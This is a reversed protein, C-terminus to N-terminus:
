FSYRLRQKVGTGVIWAVIDDVVGSAAGPISLFAKGMANTSATISSAYDDTGHMKIEITVGQKPPFIQATITVDQFTAPDAPTAWVMLSYLTNLNAIEEKEGEDAEEEDLVDSEEGSGPTLVFTVVPNEMTVKGSKVYARFNQADARMTVTDGVYLGTVTFDGGSTTLLQDFPATIHVTSGHIGSTNGEEDKAVIHGILTAELPYLGVLYIKGDTTASFGGKEYGPASASGQLSPYSENGLPLVIRFGGNSDTTATRTEGNPDTLSVSAAPIPRDNRAKDIVRGQIVKQEEGRLEITATRSASLYITGDLETAATTIIIPIMKQMEGQVEAKFISYTWSATGSDNTKVIETSGDDRAFNLPMGSVPNGDRTTLHATVVVDVHPNDVQPNWENILSPTASVELFPRRAITLTTSAEVVDVDTGTYTATVTVRTGNNSMLGWLKKKATLTVTADPVVSTQSLEGYQSVSLTISPPSPAANPDVEAIRGTGGPHPSGEHLIPHLKVQIEVSGIDELLDSSTLLEARYIRRVNGSEFWAQARARSLRRLEEQDISSDATFTIEKNEITARIAEYKSLLGSAVEAAKSTYVFGFGIRNRYDAAKEPDPAPPDWELPNRPLANAEQVAINDALAKLRAEEHPGYKKGMEAAVDYAFDHRMAIADLEDIPQRNGAKGSFYEGGSLGPGYWNGYYILKTTQGADYARKLLQWATQKDAETNGTAANEQGLIITQEEAIALTGLSALLLFAVAAISRTRQMWQRNV